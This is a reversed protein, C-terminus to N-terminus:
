RAEEDVNLRDETRLLDLYWELEKAIGAALDPERLEPPLVGWAYTEVEFHRCDSYRRAATLCERIDGRTARLQGFQELFIPVHFHVRWEGLERDPDSRTQLALPL